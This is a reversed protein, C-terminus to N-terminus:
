GLWRWIKKWIRKGPSEEVLNPQALEWLLYKIKHQVLEWTELEIVDDVYQKKALKYQAQMLITHDGFADCLALAQDIEHRDILLQLQPHISVPLEPTKTQKMAELELVAQYLQLQTRSWTEADTLDQLDQKRATEFSNALTEAEPWACERLLQVVENTNGLRMHQRILFTIRDKSGEDAAMDKAQIPPFDESVFIRNM